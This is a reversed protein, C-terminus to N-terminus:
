NLNNYVSVVAIHVVVHHIVVIRNGLRVGLYVWRQKLATILNRRSDPLMEFIRRRKEINLGISIGLIVHVLDLYEVLLFVHPVNGM